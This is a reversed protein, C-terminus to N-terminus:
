RKRQMAIVANDIIRVKSEGIGVPNGDCSTVEDAIIDVIEDDFSFTYTIIPEIRRVDNKTYTSIVIGENICAIVGKFGLFASLSPGGAVGKGLFRKDSLSVFINGFTGELKRNGVRVQAYFKRPNAVIKEGRMYRKADVQVKEGNITTLITSGVVVDNFALRRENGMTLELARFSLPELEKFNPDCILPSVNTTGIGICLLPTKPRASAADSATGDGGFVVILDVIGDFVKVSKVTDERSNTLDFELVENPNILEAGLGKVAYVRTPKLKELVKKIMTVKEKNIGGGAIPNVIIGVNM